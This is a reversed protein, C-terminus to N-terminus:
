KWSFEGRLVRTDIRTKAVANRVDDVALRHLERRMEQSSSVTAATRINDPIM